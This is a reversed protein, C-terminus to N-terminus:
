RGVLRGRLLEHCYRADPDTRERQRRAALLSGATIQRAVSALDVSSATLVSSAGPYGWLPASQGARLLVYDTAAAASLAAPVSASFEVQTVPAGLPDTVASTKSVTIWASATITGATLATTNILLYRDGPKIGTVKGALWVFNSGLLPQKSPAVNAVIVDPATVTTQQALEFM